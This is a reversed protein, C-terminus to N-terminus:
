GCDDTSEIEDYDQLSPPPEGFLSPAIITRTPVYWSCRTYAGSPGGPDILDDPVGHSKLVIRTREKAATLLDSDYTPRDGEKAVSLLFPQSGRKGPQEPLSNNPKNMDFDDIRGVVACLANSIVLIDSGMVDLGSREFCFVTHNLATWPNYGLDIIDTLRDGEKLCSDLAKRLGEDKIVHSTADPFRPFDNDVDAKIIKDLADIDSCKKM